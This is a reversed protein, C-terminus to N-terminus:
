MSLHALRTVERAHLLVVKVVLGPSTALPARRGLPDNSALAHAFFSNADNRTTIEGYDATVSTSLYVGHVVAIHHATIMVTGRIRAQKM